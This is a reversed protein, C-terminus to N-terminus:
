KNFDEFLESLSIDLAECFKKLTYSTPNTKGTEIRTYNGSDMLLRRAMEITSVSKQERMKKLHVGLKILFDRKDSRM